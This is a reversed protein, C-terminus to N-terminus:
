RMADKKFPTEVGIRALAEAFNARVIEPSGQKIVLGSASALLERESVSLDQSTNIIVPINSTGSDQKLKELVDYGSLDPMALDLIILRPSAESALRLGESGSSAEIFRFGTDVLATRVVYRSAEDDDVILALRDAKDVWASHLVKLLWAREVPKAHFGDAGLALAKNQNDVITIVFVPISKTSPDSKLEQLLEWSQEGELLVDLIIAVPDFETLAKRAEKLNRAPVV